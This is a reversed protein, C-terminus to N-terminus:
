DTTPVPHAALEDAGSRPFTGAVVVRNRGARKAELLAEDADRLLEEFTRDPDAGVVGYSSTFAPVDGTAVALVLQERAREVVAVAEDLACRPFVVVFEEGGIRGILDDSRVTRELTRAFLRLARDGTQHGFTDNLAKFHDLDAMAVSFPIEQALLGRVQNELSRRNLLGTLPDASAQLQTRQMARLMGIRAGAQTAVASLQSVRDPEPPQGPPATSHLVGVPRGMITVPVCVASCRGSPRDALMPCADLEDSDAFVQIQGRRVATCRWPSEAPCRPGSGDPGWEVAEQLHARSSDALLFEFPAEPDVARLAREVVRLAGTETDAMELARNLRGDFEHRRSVTALHREREEVSAREAQLAEVVPRGVKLWGVPTGVLALSLFQLGIRWHLALGPALHQTLYAVGAVSWAVLSATWLALSTISPGGRLTRDQDLWSFSARLEDIREGM